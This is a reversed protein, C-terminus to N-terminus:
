DNVMPPLNEAFYAQRWRLLGHCCRLKPWHHFICRYNIIRCSTIDLFHLSSPKTNNETIITASSYCIGFCCLVPLCRQLIKISSFLLFIWNAQSLTSWIDLPCKIKIPLAQPLYRLSSVRRVSLAGVSRPSHSRLQAVPWLGQLSCTYDVCKRGRMGEADVQVLNLCGSSSPLANSRFTSVSV